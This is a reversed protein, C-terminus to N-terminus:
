HAKAPLLQHLDRWLTYMAFLTYVQHTEAGNVGRYPQQVAPKLFHRVAAGTDIAEPCQQHKSRVNREFNRMQKTVLTLQGFQEWIIFCDSGPDRMEGRKFKSVTAVM